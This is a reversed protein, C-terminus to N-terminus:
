RFLVVPVVTMGLFASFSRVSPFFGADGGVDFVLWPRPTMTLVVRLGGDHPLAPPADSFYYTEVAVGFPSKPISTSLALAVLAQNAPTTDPNTTSTVGANFDAHIPGFDKSAHGTVLVLLNDHTPIGVLATIALSPIFTAQDMLHFKVGAVIDDFFPTGSHGTLVTLGNPSGVQLQFMKSLTQKFLFSFTRTVVSQTAGM